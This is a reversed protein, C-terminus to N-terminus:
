EVSNQKLLNYLFDLALGLRPVGSLNTYLLLATGLPHCDGREKPPRLRTKYDYSLYSNFM